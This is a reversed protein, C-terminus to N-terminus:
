VSFRPEQAASKEHGAQIMLNFERVLLAVVGTIAIM